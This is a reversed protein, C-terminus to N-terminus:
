PDLSSIGECIAFKTLEAISNINLKDKIQQRYTEITKVSLRLSSAIQKTTNGEVMLKLVERQRPSLVYFFLSKNTSLKYVNDEETIKAMIPSLFTRNHVITFIAQILEESACDKLLYGSAGARLIRTVYRRDSHMSLALVKVHSTQATILQTVEIGNMNPITVDMIVINPKIELAMKLATQGDGAEGVVEINPQVELLSRLGERMLKHDDVLLVRISM